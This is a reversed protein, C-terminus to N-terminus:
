FNDFIVLINSFKFLYLICIANFSCAMTKFCYADYFSRRMHNKFFSMACYSTQIIGHACKMYFMKSKWIKLIHCPMFYETYPLSPKGCQHHFVWNTWYLASIKIHKVTLKIFRDNSLLSTKLSLKRALEPFMTFIKNIVETLMKVGHSTRPLAFTSFKSFYTGQEWEFPM